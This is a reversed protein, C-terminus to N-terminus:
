VYGGEILEAWYGRLFLKYDGVCVLGCFDHDDLISGHNYAALLISLYATM